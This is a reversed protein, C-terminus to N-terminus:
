ATALVLGAGVLGGGLVGYVLRAGTRGFLAVFRRARTSTMFFSWDFFGGAIAFAGAPVLAYGIPAQDGRLHVSQMYLYAGTAAVVALALV